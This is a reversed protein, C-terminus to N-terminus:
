SSTQRVIVIENLFQQRLQFTARHSLDLEINVAKNKQNLAKIRHNLYMNEIYLVKEKSLKTGLIKAAEMDNDLQHVKRVVQTLFDQQLKEEDVNSSFLQNHIVIVKELYVNLLKFFDDEAGNIQMSLTDIETNLTNISMNLFHVMRKNDELQNAKEDIVNDSYRLQKM